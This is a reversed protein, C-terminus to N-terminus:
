RLGVDARSPEPSAGPRAGELATRMAEGLTGISCPKDLVRVVGHRRPDDIGDGFGTMLIVPLPHRRRVEEALALGTMGPMTLDTLVVAFDNRTALKALAEEATSVVTPQYGIRRLVLAVASGVMPEDDVVLVHEGKARVFPPRPLPENTSGVTAAPLLVRFATGRGAASEITVTGGLGTVIAHVTSLGLGTGKGGAKTTFYPEFVREAVEPAMGHGTDRVTLAVRNGEAREVSISMAGGTRDMADRANTVLNLLVQHIRGQDAMVPPIHEGVHTALTISSPLSARVLQAVEQVLKGIEVPSVAGSDPRSVRILQRVLAAARKVGVIITAVDERLPSSTPLAEHTLEACSLIPVMINNFDHAIGAALVGVSEMKQAHLRQRELQLRVAENRREATIDHLVVLHVRAFSGELSTASCVAIHASGDKARIRLEIPEFPANDRKARELREGWDAMVAARYAPDPYAKPWWSELNPIDEITYGFTSVFAPNLYTINGHDDNLAYPVPSANVIAALRAESSKEATVDRFVGVTQREDPLAQASVQMWVATGDEKVTGIEIPDIVGRTALVRANPFESPSGDSHVYQRARHRDAAFDDRSLGLIRELAPNVQLLKGEADMVAIGVPLLEFLAAWRRERAALEQQLRHQESIDTVVAMFGRVVGADIDPTYTALAHRPPGGAPDPIPREFQQPIGHLAGRIYPENLAYIPGLLERMSMGHLEAPPRNFWTRYADNAYRCHETDDWYAVMGPFHAGLTAVLHERGSISRVRFPLLELYRGSPDKTLCRADLTPCDRLLALEDDISETLVVWPIGDLQPVVHPERLLTASAVGLHFTDRRIAAAAEEANSVVVLSEAALSQAVATADAPGLVM